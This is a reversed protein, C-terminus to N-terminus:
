KTVASGLLVTGICVDIKRQHTKLISGRSSVRPRLIVNKRFVSIKHSM